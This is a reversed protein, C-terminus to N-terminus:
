WKMRCIPKSSSIGFTCRCGLCAFTNVPARLWSFVATANASLKTCAIPSASKLPTGNFMAATRLPDQKASFVGCSDFDGAKGLPIISDNPRIWKWKRGDASWSHQDNWTDQQAKRAASRAPMALAEVFHDWGGM